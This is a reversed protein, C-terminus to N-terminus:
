RDRRIMWLLLQELYSEGASITELKVVADKTLREVEASAQDLGVLSAYTMKNNRADSGIPKGLKEQTSTIDLIDDQIQFAMGVESALKEITKVTPEDAGALIAGMMMVISAMNDCILTVDVGAKSLEYSTLRAGQLLPRTEDAFVRFKMGDDTIDIKVGTREIITNITKGRQGVVDGIKQPDIMITEIKPAYAGVEPRPEHITKDMVEDLIYLRAKRTRAIAEEIIPRTLGHDFLHTELTKARSNSVTPKTGINSIGLIKQGNIVSISTYVGNPPLLKERPPIVNITPIGIKRGLQRGRVVTGSVSYKRGLLIEVTELDGERIKGRALSSSIEEGKYIKKTVIEAKYGYKDALAVLMDTNGRARYGFHFDDGAVVYKMNLDDILIRKIFDEPEMHIIEDIFPCEILVDLGSKALYSRREENTM